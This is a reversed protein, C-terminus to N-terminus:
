KITLLAVTEVHPTQSFMDVSKLRTVTYGAQLFYPLDRALSTPKCSVYIYAKPQFNIIKSIAKPHIGDRPPDLIIIDPSEKINDLLDLVDGSYFECNDIKNLKANERAAVVAEEVIEIGIVKDANSSLVQAITGTGCYLDYITNHRITGVFEKVTSYLQMAGITNTQFFSYPTIKFSLDFLKDYIFDQGYLLKSKDSQVIDAMSENTTHIIGKISGLLPLNLISNVLDDEHLQGQSSTVFNILIDGTMIGKRVVLHRLFGEHSRKHYYTYNHHSAFNLVSTLIIRFDNDVLLCVSTNVIDYMSGRKHLGLTLPGDKYEDGFSFEMKNRYEFTKKSGEVGEYIDELHFDKLIDLIFKEKLLLQDEYNLNQYSCGGCEKFVPCPGDVENPAKELIELLIADVKDGKKKKIKVRLKQGPISNKIIIKKNNEIYAIGKNPFKIDDITIDITEGKKVM